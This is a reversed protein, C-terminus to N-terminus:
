VRNNENFNRLKCNENKYQKVQHLCLKAITHIFERFTLNQFNAKRVRVYYIRLKTEQHSEDDWRTIVLNGEPSASAAPKM